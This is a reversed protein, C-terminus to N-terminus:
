PPQPLRRLWVAQPDTPSPNQLERLGEPLRSSMGSFTVGEPTSPLPGTGRDGGLFTVLGVRPERSGPLQFEHTAGPAPSRARPRAPHEPCSSSEASPHNPTPLGAPAFGEPIATLRVEKPFSSATIRRLEHQHRVPLQSVSPSVDPPPDAASGLPISRPGKPPRPRIGVPPLSEM